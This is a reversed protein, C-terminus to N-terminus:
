KKKGGALKSFDFVQGLYSRRYRRQARFCDMQVSQQLKILKDLHNAQSFDKNSYLQKIQRWDAVCRNLWELKMYRALMNIEQSSLQNVFYAPATVAPTEGLAPEVEVVNVYDIDLAIQPREFRDIAKILLARWDQKIVLEDEELMWDDATIQVLFSDFVTQLPTGNTLSM